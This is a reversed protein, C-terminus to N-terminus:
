VRPADGLYAELLRGIEAPLFPMIIDYFVSNEKVEVGNVFINRGGGWMSVDLIKGEEAVEFVYYIRANVHSKNKVPITNGKNIQWLLDVHEELESGNIIIIQVDRFNILDDVSLAVRTLIYPNIFYITLTLNGLNKEEVLKSFNNLAKELRVNDGGCSTLVTSAIWLIALFGLIIRKYM